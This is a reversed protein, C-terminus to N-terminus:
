ADLSGDAKALAVRAAAMREDWRARQDALSVTAEDDAVIGRLANFLDPAACVLKMNAMHQPVGGLIQVIPVGGGYVVDWGSGQFDISWPAPSFEAPKGTDRRRCTRIHEQTLPGGCNCVGFMGESM